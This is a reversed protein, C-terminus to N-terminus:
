QPAFTYRSPGSNYRQRRAESCCSRIGCCSTWEFPIKPDGVTENLVDEPYSITFVLFARLPLRRHVADGM